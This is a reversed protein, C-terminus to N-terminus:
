KQDNLTHVNSFDHAKEVPDFKGHYEKIQLEPFDTELARVIGQMDKRLHCILSASTRNEFPLSSTNKRLSILITSLLSLYARVFPRLGNMNLDTLDNDMVIIRRAEQILKYLKEISQGALHSQAQAIISVIEDLWLDYQIPLCKCKKNCKCNNTIRHLSEIQCVVRKHDPLNINGDIDCYSKLNLRTTVANLYSHRTSLVLLNVDDSITLHELVYTKGMKWPSDVYIDGENPLPRVYKEEYIETASLPENYKVWFPFNVFAKSFGLVKIGCEDSNQWFCKIIFEGSRACVRSFWQQDKNHIRQSEGIGETM